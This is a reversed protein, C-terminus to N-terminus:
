NVCNIKILLFTHFPQEIILNKLKERKLHDNNLYAFKKTLIHLLLQKRSLFALITWFLYTLVYFPSDFCPSFLRHVLRRLSYQQCDHNCATKSRFLGAPLLQRQTSNYEAHKRKTEIRKKRTRVTRNPFDRRETCGEGDNQAGITRHRERDIHVKILLSGRAPRGESYYFNVAAIYSVCLFSM